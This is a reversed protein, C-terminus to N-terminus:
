NACNPDAPVNEGSYCRQFAAFDAQDVDNDADLKAWDCDQRDQAIGSGSACLEFQDWDAQDVDGDRDRDCPVVPPCGTTDVAIGPITNPCDDCDNIVGDGDTDPECEDPVGNENCDAAHSAQTDYRLVEGSYDTGNFFPSFYLYGGAFVVGTFGDPDNGVGHSGPDFTGWSAANSFSGRTDFRL